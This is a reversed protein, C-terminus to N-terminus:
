ASCVSDDAKSLSVRRTRRVVYYVGFVLLVVFSVGFVIGVISGAGVWSGGGGNESRSSSVKSQDEVAMQAAVMPLHSCGSSSEHCPKMMVTPDWTKPHFFEVASPSFAIPTEYVLGHPARGQAMVMSIFAQSSFIVFFFFSSLAM